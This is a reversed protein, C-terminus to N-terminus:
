VIKWPCKGPKHVCLFYRYDDWKEDEVEALCIAWETIDVPAEMAAKECGCNNPLFHHLTSINEMVWNRYNKPADKGAEQYFCVVDCPSFFFCYQTRNETGLATAKQRLAESIENYQSETIRKPKMKTQEKQNITTSQQKHNNL